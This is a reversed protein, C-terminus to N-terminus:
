VTCFIMEYPKTLFSCIASKANALCHILLLSEQKQFMLQEKTPKHRVSRAKKFSKRAHLFHQGKMSQLRLGFFLNVCNGLGKISHFCMPQAFRFTIWGVVSVVLINSKSYIDNKQRNLICCLSTVICCLNRHNGQSCISIYLKTRNKIKLVKKYLQNKSQRM